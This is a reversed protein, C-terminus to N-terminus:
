QSSVLAEIAELVRDTDLPKSFTQNAGPVREVAPFDHAGATMAIIKASPHTARIEMITETGDKVPMILDILAVDPPEANYLDVAEQGDVAERVEHGAAELKARLIKRSVTEDDVILIRAGM